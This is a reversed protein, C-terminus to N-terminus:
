KTNYHHLTINFKGNDGQSHFSVSRIITFTLLRTVVVAVVSTIHINCSPLVFISRFHDAHSALSKPQSEKGRLGGTKDRLIHQVQLVTLTDQRLM